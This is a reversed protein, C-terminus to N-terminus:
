GRRYNTVFDAMKKSMQNGIFAEGFASNPNFSMTIGVVLNIAIIVISVVASVVSGILMIAAVPIGVITLCLGAAVIIAGVLGLVLKVIDFARALVQTVIKGILVFPYSIITAIM